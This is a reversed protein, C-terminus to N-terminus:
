TAASGRATLVRAAPATTVTRGEARGAAEGVGAPLMLARTPGGIGGVDVIVGLGRGVNVIVGLGCGVDVIVGLGRGVDVAVGRGVDVAVGLGRGVDVAVGRGDGVGVGRGRGVDAGGGNATSGAARGAENPEHAGAATSRASARDPSTPTATTATSLPDNDLQCPM